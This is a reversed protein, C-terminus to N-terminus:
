GYTQCYMSSPIARQSQAPKGNNTFATGYAFTMSFCPLCRFTFNRHEYRALACSEEACYGLPLLYATYPAEPPPLSNRLNAFYSFHIFFVSSHIRLRIRCSNLFVQFRTLVLYAARLSSTHVGPCAILHLLVRFLQHRIACFWMRDM